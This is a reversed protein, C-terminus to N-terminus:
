AGDGIIGLVGEQNCAIAEGLLNTKNLPTFRAREREPHRTGALPLLLPGGLSSRAQRLPL